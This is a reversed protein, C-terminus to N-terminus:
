RSTTQNAKIKHQTTMGKANFKHNVTIQEAMMKFSFTSYSTTTVLQKLAM